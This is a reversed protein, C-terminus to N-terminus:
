PRSIKKLEEMLRKFRYPLTGPGKNNSNRSRLNRRRAM